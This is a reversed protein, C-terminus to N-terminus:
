DLGGSCGVMKVGGNRFSALYTMIDVSLNNIDFALAPNGAKAEEQVSNQMSLPLLNGVCDALTSQDKRRMIRLAGFFSKTYREKVAGFENKVEEYAERAENISLKLTYDVKRM